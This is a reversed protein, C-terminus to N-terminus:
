PFWSPFFFTFVVMKTHLFSKVECCMLTFLYLATVEEIAKSFNKEESIFKLEYNSFNREHPAAHFAVAVYASINSRGVAVATQWRGPSPDAFLAFRRLYSSLSFVVVSGSLSEFAKILLSIEAIFHM